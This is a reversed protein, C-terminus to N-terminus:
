LSCIWNLSSYFRITQARSVLQPLWKLSILLCNAWCCIYLCDHAITTRCITAPHKLPNPKRYKQIYNFSIQANKMHFVLFDDGMEDGCTFIVFYAACKFNNSSIQDLFVHIWASKTDSSYFCLIPLINCRWQWNASNACLLFSPM